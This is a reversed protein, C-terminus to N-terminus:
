SMIENNINKYLFLLTNLKKNFNRLYYNYDCRLCNDIQTIIVRFVNIM